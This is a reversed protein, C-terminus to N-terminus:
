WRKRRLSPKPLVFFRQGDFFQHREFHPVKHHVDVVADPLEASEVLNLHVPLHLLGDAEGVAAAVDEVHADVAQM